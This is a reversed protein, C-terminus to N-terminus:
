TNSQGTSLQSKNGHNQIQIQWHTITNHIQLQLHTITDHMQIQWHTITNYNGWMPLYTRRRNCIHLWPSSFWHWVSFCDSWNQIKLVVSIRGKSVSACLKSPSLFRLPWDIVPFVAWLQGNSSVSLSHDPLDAPLCYLRHSFCDCAPSIDLFLFIFLFCVLFPRCPCFFVTHFLPATRLDLFFRLFFLFCVFLYFLITQVPLCVIHSVIM